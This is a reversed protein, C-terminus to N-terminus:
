KPGAKDLRALAAKADDTLVAGPTGGAWLKLLDCAAPDATLEAAQVIRMERVEGPTPKDPAAALLADLRKRAEPDDAKERAATLTPRVFRLRAALEKSAAERANFNDSALDAVWKKVQEDTFEVQAAPPLKARLLKRGAEGGVLAFAAQTAKGAQEGDGAAGWWDEPTGPPPAKALMAAFEWRYGVGGAGATFLSRGDPSFVGTGLGAALPVTFNAVVKGTATEWVLNLGFGGIFAWKGDPSLGAARITTGAKAHVKIHEPANAPLATFRNRERGAAPDLLVVVNGAFTGAVTRGDASWYFQASADHPRSADRPPFVIVRQLEAGTVVDFFVADGRDFAVLRRGDPSVAAGAGAPMSPSGLYTRLKQGTTVDWSSIERSNVYLVVVKGDPGFGVLVASGPRGDTGAAILGAETGDSTRILRVGAATGIDRPVVLLSGDPNFRMLEPMWVDKRLTRIPRGTAADCLDVRGTQDSVAVTKGGPALTLSLNGRYRGPLETEAGTTADWVRVWGEACPTLLTKGDPLVHYGGLWPGNGARLTPLEKRTAADWRALDGSALRVFLTQGDATFGIEPGCSADRGGGGMVMTEQEGPKYIPGPPKLTEVVKGTAVDRVQVEKGDRPILALTKGDPAFVLGIHISDWFITAGLRHLDKGTKADGIVVEGAPGGIEVVGPKPKPRDLRVFTAGDPSLHSVNAAALARVQKGSAPDHFAVRDFDALAFLGDPSLATLNNWRWDHGGTAWRNAGTTLDILGIRGGNQRYVLLKGDASFAFPQPTAMVNGELRVEYRPRWAPLEYVRVTQGAVALVKGDPSLASASIGGPVRYHLSGFRASVGNPLPDGPVPDAASALAAAALLACALVPRM